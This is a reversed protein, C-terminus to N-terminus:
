SHSLLPHPRLDHMPLIDDTNQKDQLVLPSCYKKGSPILFTVHQVKALIKCIIGKDHRRIACSYVQIILIATVKALSAHVVSKDFLKSLM